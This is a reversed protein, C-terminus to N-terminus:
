ITKLVEKKGLNTSEIEILIKMGLIHTLERIRHLLEKKDAVQWSTFGLMQHSIPYKTELDNYFRLSTELKTRLAELGRSTFYKKRMEEISAM